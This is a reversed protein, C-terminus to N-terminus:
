KVSGSSEPSKGGSHGNLIVVALIIGMDEWERLLISIAAAVLLVFILPDNLQALFRQLIGERKEGRLVNPGYEELRRAAEQETLGANKM